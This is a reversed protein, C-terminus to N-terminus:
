VCTATKNKWWSNDCEELDFSPDSGFLDFFGNHYTNTFDNNNEEQEENARILNAIYALLKLQEVKTLAATAQEIAEYSM